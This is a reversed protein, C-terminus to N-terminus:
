HWAARPDGARYFALGRARAGSKGWGAAEDSRMTSSGAVASNRGALGDDNPRERAGGSAGCGETLEGEWAAEISGRGAADRAGTLRGPSSRSAAM